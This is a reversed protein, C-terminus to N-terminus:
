CSSRPGFTQRSCQLCFTQLVAFHYFYIFFPIILYIFVFSSVHNKYIVVVHKSKPHYELRDEGPLPIRCTGLVKGFQSNDLENKGMKQVPIQNSDILQKYKILGYIWKGTYLAYEQDNAFHVMPFVHGPSSFVTVPDRYQMYGVRLWRDALWNEEKKACEELLKQLAAGKGKVFEEAAKATAAYEEKTLHPETTKLFKQITEELPFAPFRLLEQKAAKSSFNEQQQRTNANCNNLQLLASTSPLLQKSNINLM